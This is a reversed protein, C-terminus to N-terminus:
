EVTNDVPQREEEAPTPELLVEEEDVVIVRLEKGIDM